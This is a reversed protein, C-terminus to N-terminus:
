TFLERVCEPPRGIRAQGQHIVIPRQILIPHAIMAEIWGDDDLEAEAFHEAFAPEGDRVLDRPCINLLACIHRLEDASPPTELYSITEHGPDCDELIAKVARSKSCTGNHYLTAM